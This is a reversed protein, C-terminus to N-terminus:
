PNARAAAPAAGPVRGPPPSSAAADRAEDAGRLPDACGGRGDSTAGARCPQAEGNVDGGQRSSGGDIAIEVAHTAIGRVVATVLAVDSAGFLPPFSDPAVIFPVTALLSTVSRFTTSDTHHVKRILKPRTGSSAPRSLNKLRSVWQGFYTAGKNACASGAVGCCNMYTTPTMSITAPSPINSDGHVFTKEYTTAAHSMAM